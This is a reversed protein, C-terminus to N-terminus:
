GGMPRWSRRYHPRPRIFARGGPAIPADLRGPGYRETLSIVARLEGANEVFVGAGGPIIALNRALAIATLVVVATTLVAGIPTAPRLSTRRGILASAILLVFAVGEYVYRPQAATGVGFAGRGIALMALMVTIGAAAGVARPPITRRVALIALTLLGALYLLVEGLMGIGVLAQISAAPGLDIFSLITVLDTQGTTAGTASAAERGFGLYWIAFVLVVPLLWVIARRRRRDVLLEVGAAVTFPVGMGSSALSVLLLAAGAFSGRRDGREFAVLAWM